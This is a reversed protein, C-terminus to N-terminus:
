RRAPRFDQNPFASRTPRHIVIFGRSAAKHCDNCAATLKNYAIAFKPFKKEDVAKELEAIAGTTIADIMQGVPVKKYTPVLDQVDSLVEKMESLQYEALAWNRARAALWLKAHHAQIVLMFEGLGPMYAKPLDPPAQTTPAAPPAPPQTQALSQFGAAVSLANAVVLVRVFAGAIAMRTTFKERAQMSDDMRMSGMGLM